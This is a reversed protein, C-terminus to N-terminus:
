LFSTDPGLVSRLAGTTLSVWDILQDLLHQKSFNGIPMRELDICVYALADSNVQNLSARLGALARPKLNTLPELLIRHVDGIGYLSHHSM